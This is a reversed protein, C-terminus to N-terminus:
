PQPPAAQQAAAEDIRRCCEFIVQITKDAINGAVEQVKAPELREFSFQGARELACSYVAEAGEQAAAEAAYLQGNLFYISGTLRRYQVLLRGSMGGAHIFQLIQPMSGHSLRGALTVTQPVVAAARQTSDPPAVPADTTDPGPRAVVKGDVAYYPSTWGMTRMQSFQQKRQSAVQDPELGEATSIFYLVKGGIRLEDGSHLAFPELPNLRKGNVFTGNTSGLDLAEVAEQRCAIRAHNRSATVDALPITSQEDRGLTLESGEVLPVPPAGVGLLYGIPQVAM